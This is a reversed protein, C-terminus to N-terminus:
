IVYFIYVGSGPCDKKYVTNEGTYKTPYMNPQKIHGCFWQTVVSFTGALYRERLIASADSPLHDIKLSQPPM